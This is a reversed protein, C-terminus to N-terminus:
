CLRYVKILDSMWRLPLWRRHETVMEQDQFQSCEKRMEEDIM